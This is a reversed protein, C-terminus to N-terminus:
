SLRSTNVRQLKTEKHHHITIFNIILNYNILYNDIAQDENVNNIDGKRVQM